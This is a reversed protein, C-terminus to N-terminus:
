CYLLLRLRFIYFKSNWGFIKFGFKVRVWFRTPHTSHLNHPPLQKGFGDEGKALLDFDAWPPYLQDIFDTEIFHESGRM